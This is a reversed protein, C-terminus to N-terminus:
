VKLIELYKKILIDLALSMDSSHECDCDLKDAMDVLLAKILVVPQSPQFEQCEIGSREAVVRSIYAGHKNIKDIVLLANQVGIRLNDNAKNAKLLASSTSLSLIQIDRRCQSKFEYYCSELWQISEYSHAKTSERELELCLQQLLHTHKKYEPKRPYKLYFVVDDIVLYRLLRVLLSSTYAIKIKEDKGFKAVIEDETPIRQEKKRLGWDPMPPQCHLPLNM